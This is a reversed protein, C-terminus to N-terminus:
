ENQVGAFMYSNSLCFGICSEITNSSDVYSIGNLDRVSDVWDKYCGIPALSNIPGKFLIKLYNRKKRKDLIQYNIVKDM